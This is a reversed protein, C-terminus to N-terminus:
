AKEAPPDDSAAAEEKPLEDAYWETDPDGSCAAGEKDLEDDSSPMMDEVEGAVMELINLQQRKTKPSASRDFAKVDERLTKIKDWLLFDLPWLRVGHKKEFKAGLKAAINDEEWRATTTELEQLREEDSIETTVAEEELPPKWEWLSSPAIKPANTSDFLHKETEEGRAVAEFILQDELSWETEEEQPSPQHDVAAAAVSSSTSLLGEAASEVVQQKAEADALLLDIKERQMKLFRTQSASLVQFSTFKFRHSYVYIFEHLPSICHVEIYLPTHCHLMGTAISEYESGCARHIKTFCATATACGKTGKTAAACSQVAEGGARCRRRSAQVDETEQWICRSTRGIRICLHM